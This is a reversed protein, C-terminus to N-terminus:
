GDPKRDWFLTIWWFLVRASIHGWECNTYLDVSLEIDGFYMSLTIRFYKSINFSHEWFKNAIKNKLDM